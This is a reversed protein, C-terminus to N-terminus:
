LVKLEGCEVQDALREFISGASYLSSRAATAAWRIARSQSERDICEREAAILELTKARWEDFVDADVFVTAAIHKKWAEDLEKRTM